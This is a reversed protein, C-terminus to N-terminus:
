LMLSVSVRQWLHLSGPPSLAVCVCLVPVKCGFVKACVLGVAFLLCQQLPEPCGWLMSAPAASYQKPRFDTIQIRTCGQAPDPLRESCCAAHTECLTSVQPWFMLPSLCPLASGWSTAAIPRRMSAATLSSGSVAWLCCPRHFVLRSLAWCLHM